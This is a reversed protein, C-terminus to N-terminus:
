WPQQQRWKIWEDIDVPLILTRTVATGSSNYATSDKRGALSEIHWTASEPMWVWEFIAGDTPYNRKRSNPFSLSVVVNTNQPATGFLIRVRTPRPPEWDSPLGIRYAAGETNALDYADVFVELERTPLNTPIYWMFTSSDQPYYGIRVTESESVRQGLANTVSTLAAANSHIDGTNAAIASQLADRATELAALAVSDTEATLAGIQAATVGHPNDTRGSHTEIEGHLANSASALAGLAIEDTEATLAGIGEATIGHPNAAAAHAAIAAANTETAGRVEALDEATACGGLLEDTQPATYLAADPSMEGLTEPVIGDARATAIGAALLLALVHPAAADTAKQLAEWIANVRKIATNLNRATDMGDGNEMEEKMAAFGDYGGGAPVPVTRADELFTHGGTHPVIALAIAGASLEGSALKDLAAFAAQEKEAFPNQEDAVGRRRFLMACLCAVAARELFAQPPAPHALAVLAARAEVEAAAQAALKAFLGEDEVGDGNDDLAERLHEADFEAEVAARQIELAM